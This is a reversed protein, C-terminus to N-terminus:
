IVFAALEKLVEAVATSDSMQKAARRVIADLRARQGYPPLAFENPPQGHADVYTEPM